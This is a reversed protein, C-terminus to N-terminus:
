VRIKYRRGFILILVLVIAYDTNTLPYMQLMKFIMQIIVLYAVVARDGANRKAKKYICGALVGFAFMGLIVGIWRLDAYLAYFPTVFANTYMGEGIAIHTQLDLVESGATLYTEPYPMGFVANLLPLIKIWYGYLGAFGYSWFGSAELQQVHKDFFVVSGCFYRYYKQLLEGIEVGRMFTVVLLVVIMVLVLASVTRKAKKSWTFGAKKGLSKYISFCALLEITTYALGFRGGDTLSGLITLGMVAIICTYNKKIDLVFYHIGTAIVLMEVGAQISDFLEWAYGSREAFGTIQTIGYSALRIEDLTHGSFLLQMTQVFGVIAPIYLLGTFIWFTRKKMFSVEESHELALAAQTAQTTGKIAVRNAFAVGILFAVSGVLIIGWTKESAGYMSFLRLSAFFSIAGWLYCYFVDPAAWTKRTNHLLLGVAFLLLSVLYGM